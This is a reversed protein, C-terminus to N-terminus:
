HTVLPLDRAYSFEPDTNATHCATSSRGAFSWDLCGISKGHDNNKVLYYGNVREAERLVGRQIARIAIDLGPARRIFRRAKRDSFHLVAIALDHPEALNRRLVTFPDLPKVGHIARRRIGSDVIATILIRHNNITLVTHPKFGPAPLNLNTCIINSATGVM